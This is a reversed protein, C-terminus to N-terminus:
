KSNYGNGPQLVEPAMRCFFFCSNLIYVMSCFTTTYSSYLISLLRGALLVLLHTEQVNGIVTILCALLCVLIALSLRGMTMLFYTEQRTSQLFFFFM